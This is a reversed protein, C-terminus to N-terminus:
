YRTAGRMGVEHSRAAPDIEELTWFRHKCPLSECDRKRRIVFDSIQRSDRVM